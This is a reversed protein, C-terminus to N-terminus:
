LEKILVKGFGSVQIDTDIHPSDSTSCSRIKQLIARGDNENSFLEKAFQSQRAKM